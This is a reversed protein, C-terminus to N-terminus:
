FRMTFLLGKLDKDLLPSVSVHNTLLYADAHKEKQSKAFSTGIITGLTAGALCDSLYHMNDQIRSAGVFGTTLYLPIAIRLDWDYMESFSAAITAVGSVHGSPFSMRNTHNPRLRETSYKVSETAIMDAILAELVVVGTDSMRLSGSLKGTLLTAMGIGAEIPATGLHDGTRAARGLPFRTQAYDKVDEDVTFALGTLIAGAILIQANERTFIKKYSEVYDSLIGQGYEFFTPVRIQKREQVARGAEGAFPATGASGPLPSDPPGAGEIQEVLNIGGPTDTPFRYSFGCATGPLLVLLGLCALLAAHGSHKIRMRIPM